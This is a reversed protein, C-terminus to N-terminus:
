PPAVLWALPRRYTTVMKDHPVEHGMGDVIRVRVPVKGKRLTAEVRKTADAVQDNKGTLLHRSNGANKDRYRDDRDNGYKVPVDEFM